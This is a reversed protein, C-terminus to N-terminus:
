LGEFADVDTIFGEKSITRITGLELSYDQYYMDLMHDMVIGGGWMLCAFSLDMSATHVSRFYRRMWEEIKEDPEIEPISVDFRLAVPKDM